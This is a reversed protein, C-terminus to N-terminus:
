NRIYMNSTQLVLCFFQTNLRNGSFFIGEKAASAPANGRQGESPHSAVRREPRRASCGALVACSPIKM